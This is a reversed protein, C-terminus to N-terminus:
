RGSASDSVSAVRDVEAAVDAACGWSLTVGAGGHGYNHFVDTGNISPAREVRVRSRTPRLGVRHELVRAGAIRPDIEACRRIIRESQAPDRELDWSGEEASGGLVVTHQHPYIYRLEPSDGTDESFFEEIGPNEILVMQGRIPRLGNDQVLERAGIGACNVIRPAAAVADGLSGVRGQELHGGASEFRAALYELYRAMEVMPATFRCGSVFGPPLDDGGLVRFDGLAAAWWPPAVAERGAEIGTVMRVGTAPEAALGKLENLSELSWREVL